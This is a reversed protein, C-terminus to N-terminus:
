VTVAYAHNWKKLKHLDRETSKMGDANCMVGFIGSM